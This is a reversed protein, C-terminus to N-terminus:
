KEEDKTKKRSGLLYTGIMGLIAGIGSITTTAGTHPLTTLKSPPTPGQPTSNSPKDSNGRPNNEVITTTNKGDEGKEGKKIVIKNGDSLHVITNGESDFESKVVTLSVADKGDKGDIGDKGDLGDKGNTGRLVTAVFGDSFTILTNGDADYDTNVVTLASGPEGKEGKQGISSKGTDKGDIYWNGNDGITVTPSDPTIERYKAYYILNRNIPTELIQDDPIVNTTGDTFWGIFEYGEKPAAIPLNGVVDAVKKDNGQLTRIEYGEGDISGKETDTAFTLAYEPATWVAELQIDESIRLQLVQDSTYVKDSGNVRWGIFKWGYAKEDESLEPVTVVDTYMGLSDGNLAGYFSVYEVNGQTFPAPDNGGQYWIRFAVPNQFQDEGMRGGPFTGVKSVAQVRRSISVLMWSLNVKQNEETIEVTTVKPQYVRDVEPSTVIASEDEHLVEIKYTGIPLDPVIFIGNETGIKGTTGDFVVVGDQNTVKIKVNNYNSGQFWNVQVGMKTGDTKYVFDRAKENVYKKVHGKIEAAHATSIGFILMFACLLMLVKKKM